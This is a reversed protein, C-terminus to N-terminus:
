AFYNTMDAYTVQKDFLLDWNDSNRLKDSLKKLLSLTTLSPGSGTSIREVKLKKLMTVDLTAEILINLPLKIEKKLEAVTEIEHVFPVFIGDAGSEQFAKARRISEATRANLGGSGLRMADTRANIFLHVKKKSSLERVKTILRQQYALDNLKKTVSNSDELNIGAIGTDIVANIFKTFKDEDGQAYGGEIDASVPIGTSLVIREIVRLMLEPPIHEGDQYGCSFSIGSSTTAIAPFGAAEFIKASAADWANPLILTHDTHHLALFKEALEKQTTKNKIMKNNTPLHISRQSFM